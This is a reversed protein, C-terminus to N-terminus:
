AKLNLHMQVDGQEHSPAIYAFQNTKRHFLHGLLDICFIPKSFQFALLLGHTDDPQEIRVLKAKEKIKFEFGEPMTGPQIEFKIKFQFCRKKIKLFKRKYIRAPLEVLIGTNSINKVKGKLKGYHKVRGIGKVEVSYNALYRKNQMSQGDICKMKHIDNGLITHTGRRDESSRIEEKDPVNPLVRRDEKYVPFIDEQTPNQEKLLMFGGIGENLIM